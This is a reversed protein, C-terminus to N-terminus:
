VIYERRYLNYKEPIGWDDLEVLAGNNAIGYCENDIEIEVWGHYIIELEGTTANLTENCGIVKKITENRIRFLTYFTVSRTFCNGSSKNEEDRNLIYAPPYVAKRGGGEWIEAVRKGDIILYGVVPTGSKEKMEITTRKAYWQVRPDRSSVEVIKRFNTSYNAKVGGTGGNTDGDKGIFWNKATVNPIMALFRKADAHDNPNLYEYVYQEIFDGIGDGDTDMKMPNTGIEIEVKDSIWDGDTDIEEKETEKSENGVIITAATRGAGETLTETSVDVTPAYFFQAYVIVSLSLGVVLFLILVDKRWIHKKVYGEVRREVM